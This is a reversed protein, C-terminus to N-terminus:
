ADSYEKSGMIYSLVLAQLNSPMRNTADKLDISYFTDTGCYSLLTKFNNQNFTCDEKFRRLVHNLLDHLPKLVGQSWYDFMAVIRTKGEKDAIAQLRRICATKGKKTYGLTPAPRRDLYFGLNGEEDNCISELDICLENPLLNLDDLSTGLAPGNPGMTTTLHPKFSDITHTELIDSLNQEQLFLL